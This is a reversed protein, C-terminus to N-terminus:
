VKIRSPQIMRPIDIGTALIQQGNPTRGTDFVKSWFNLNQKPGFVINSLEKNTWCTLEALNELFNRLQEWLADPLDNHLLREKNLRQGTFAYHHEIVERMCRVVNALVEERAIRWARLHEPQIIEGKAIRSELQRGGTEPDWRDIFFVESFMSMMKVLQTKERQRIDISIDLPDDLTKKYLLEKFFSGEIAGYSLPRDTGRGSWEVFELLSNDPSHTISDRQADVIYREMERSEGRFFRVLDEESFSYDDDTLGLSERYKREREYYLSSGLHRMVARDFAVQRLKSGANPTLKFYFM